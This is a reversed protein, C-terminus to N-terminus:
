LHRRRYRSHYAREHREMKVGHDYGKLHLFAHIVLFLLYEEFTMEFKKSKKEAIKPTIFIEGSTKSFPFSLVDTAYDKQRYTKNLFKSRTTGILVISVEFKKGLIDDKIKEFPLKQFNKPLLFLNKLTSSLFVKESQFIVKM